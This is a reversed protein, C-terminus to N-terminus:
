GERRGLLQFKDDVRRIALAMKVDRTPVLVVVGAHNTWEGHIIGFSRCEMQVRLYDTSATRAVMSKPDVTLMWEWAVERPVNGDIVEWDMFDTGMLVRGKELAIASM